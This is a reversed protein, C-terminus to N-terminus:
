RQPHGTHEAGRTYQEANARWSQREEISHDAALMDAAHDVCDLLVLAAWRTAAATDGAPTGPPLPHTHVRGRAGHTQYQSAIVERHLPTLESVLGALADALMKRAYTDQPEHSALTIIREWNRQGYITVRAKAGYRGTPQGFPSGSQNLVQDEADNAPHDCAARFVTRSGAPRDTRVGNM